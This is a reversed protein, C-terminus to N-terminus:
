CLQIKVWGMPINYGSIVTRTIPFINKIKYVKQRPAMGLKYKAQLSRFANPNQLYIAMGISNDYYSKGSGIRLFCAVDNSTKISVIEDKISDYFQNLNESANYDVNSSQNLIDQEVTLSQYAFENIMNITDKNFPWQNSKYPFTSTQKKAICLKTQPVKSRGGDLHLRETRFVVMSTEPFLESDGISIDVYLRKNSPKQAQNYPPFQDSFFNLDPQRNNQIDSIINNLTNSGQSSMLWSYLIAGKMAGKITSGPIFPRGNSLICSTIQEKTQTANPFPITKTVINAPNMGLERKIFTDISFNTGTRSANISKAIQKSFLDTKRKEAIANSLEPKNLFCLEKQSVFFDTIPSMVTGSGISVPTYTEIKLRNLEREGM